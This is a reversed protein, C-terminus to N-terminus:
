QIITINIHKGKRRTKMLRSNIPKWEMLSKELGNKLIIAVGKHHQVDDRGSSLDTEGRSTRHRGSITWRSERTGLIYPNYCRMEATVHESKGTELMTRINSFGNRNKACLVEMKRDPKKEAKVVTM